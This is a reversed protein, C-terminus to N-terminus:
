LTYLRVSSRFLYFLSGWLLRNGYRFSPQKVVKILAILALLLQLILLPILFLLYENLNTM